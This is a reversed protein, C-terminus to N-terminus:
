GVPLGWEQALEKAQEITKSLQCSGLTALCDSCASLHNMRDQSIPTGPPVIIGCFKFSSTTGCSLCVDLTVAQGVATRRSKYRGQQAPTLLHLLERAENRFDALHHNRCSVRIATNGPIPGVEAIAKNIGSVVFNSGAPAMIM